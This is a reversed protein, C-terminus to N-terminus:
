IVVAQDKGVMIQVDRNDLKFFITSPVSISEQPNMIKRTGNIDNVNVGYNSIFGELKSRNTLRNKFDSSDSFVSEFVDILTREIPQYEQGIPIIENHSFDVIALGSPHLYPKGDDTFLHLGYLPVSAWNYGIHEVIEGNTYEIPYGDNTYGSKYPHKLKVKTGIQLHDGQPETPGQLIHTWSAM